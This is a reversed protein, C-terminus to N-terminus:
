NMSKEPPRPPVRHELYLNDFIIRLERCSQFIEDLIIRSVPDNGNGVVRVIRDRRGFIVIRVEREDIKM